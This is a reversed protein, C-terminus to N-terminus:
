DASKAFETEILLDVTDGVFVDYDVGDLGFDRRSIRAGASFGLLHLDRFPHARGGNFTVSIDVPRTANKITLDGTVVGSAEGTRKVSTSIFTAKPFHAVDFTTESSLEALLNESPASLGAMDIAIEVESAEPNEGDFELTGSIAGFSGFYRSIGLRAISFVIQSHAPDLTYVGALAARPDHLVDAAASAIAAASEAKGSAGGASQPACAFLAPLSLAVVIRMRM